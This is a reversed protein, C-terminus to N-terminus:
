PHDKIPQPALPKISDKHQEPQEEKSAGTKFETEFWKQWAAPDREVKAKSLEKLADMAAGRIKYDEDKLAKTVLPPIAERSGTAKLGDVAEMRVTAEKDSLAEALTAIQSAKGYRGLASVARSRTEERESKVLLKLGELAEPSGLIAGSVAAYLRVDEDEAANSYLKKLAAAGAKYKSDGIARAANRRTALDKDELMEVLLPGARPDKADGLATIISRNMEPTTQGQKYLTVLGPVALNGMERLGAWGKERAEEDEKLTLRILKRVKNVVDPDVDGIPKVVQPEEEKPKVPTTEPPKEKPKEPTTEVVKPGEVVAKPAEKAWEPLEDAKLLAGSEALEAKFTKAASEGPKTKAVEVKYLREQKYERKVHWLADGALFKELRAQKAAASAQAEGVAHDDEELLTGDASLLVKYANKQNLEDTLELQYTQQGDKDKQKAKHVEAKPFNAELAKKVADPLADEAVLLGSGIWLALAAALGNRVLMKM